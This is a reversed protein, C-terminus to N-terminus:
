FVVQKIVISATVSGTPLPSNVVGFVAVSHIRIMDNWLGSQFSRWSLSLLLNNVCLSATSVFQSSSSPPFFCDVLTVCNWM